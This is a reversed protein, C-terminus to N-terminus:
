RRFRSRVFQYLKMLRDYLFLFGQTLSNDSFYLVICVWIGALIAWPWPLGYILQPLEAMFHAVRLVLLDTPAPM